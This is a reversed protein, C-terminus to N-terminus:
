IPLRIRSIEKLSEFVRKFQIMSITTGLIRNGIKKLRSNLGNKIPNLTYVTTSIPSSELSYKTIDTILFAFSQFIAISFRSWSQWASTVSARAKGPDSKFQTSLRKCRARPNQQFANTCCFFTNV